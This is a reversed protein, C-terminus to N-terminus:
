TTLDTFIDVGNDPRISAAPLEAGSMWASLAERKGEGSVLFWVADADGLRQPSMSVRQAPPKPADTVAIAPLQITSEDYGPFLSATHGDEGLGLLVLDFRPTRTLLAAYAAAASEADITPSVRHIQVAPIAVHNLWAQDAMQDNRGSQGRPLCREDGFYIHWCRWDTRIYRLRRYLLRPTSGGALVMSFRGKEQICRNALQHTREELRYALSDFDAFRHIRPQM